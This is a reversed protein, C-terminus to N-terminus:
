RPEGATHLLARVAAYHADHVPSSFLSWPEAQRLLRPVESAMRRRFEGYEALADAPRDEAAALALRRLGLVLEKLATRAKNREILGGVVTTDRRDPFQETLDRLEGGITDTVLDIVARDRSAIAPELTSAFDDIEKVAAAIADPQIPQEGDGVANLYAVLDSQDAASLGLGFVRDFHDIVQTYTDF